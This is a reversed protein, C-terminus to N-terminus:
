SSKALVENNEDFAGVAESEASFAIMLKEQEIMETIISTQEGRKESQDKFFRFSSSAIFSAVFISLPTMVVVLITIRIDITLMM